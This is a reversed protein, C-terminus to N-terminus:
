LEIARSVRDCFGHVVWRQRIDKGVAARDVRVPRCKGELVYYVRILIEMVKSERSGIEEIALSQLISGSEGDEVEVGGGRQSHKEASGM